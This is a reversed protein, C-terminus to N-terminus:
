KLGNIYDTYELVEKSPTMWIMQNNYKKINEFETDEFEISDKGNKLAEEIKDLIKFRPRMSEVNMGERPNSWNTVRKTLDFYNDAIVKEKIEKNELIKM